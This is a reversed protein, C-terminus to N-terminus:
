PLIPSRVRDAHGDGDSDDVWLVVAVLRTTAGSEGDFEGLVVEAYAESTGELGVYPALLLGGEHEDGVLVETFAYTGDAPSHGAQLTPAGHALESTGAVFADPTGDGDEDFLSFCYVQNCRVLLPLAVASAGPAVLLLLVLSALLRHGMGGCLAARVM